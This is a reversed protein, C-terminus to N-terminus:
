GDCDQALAETTNICEKEDPVLVFFAVFVRKALSHILHIVAHRVGGLQRQCFPSMHRRLAIRVVM